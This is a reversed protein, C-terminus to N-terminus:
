FFSLLFPRFCRWDDSARSARKTRKRLPSESASDGIAGSGSGSKSGGCGADSGAEADDRSESGSSADDDGSEFKSHGGVTEKSASAEDNDNGSLVPESPSSWGQASKDGGRGHRKDRSHGPAQRERGRSSSSTSSTSNSSISDSGSTGETCSPRPSWAADREEAGHGDFFRGPRPPERYLTLVTPLEPWRTTQGVPLAGRTHARTAQTAEGAMPAGVGNGTHAGTLSPMLYTQIFTTYDGEGRFFDADLGVMFQIIADVSLSDAIRMSAPPPMPVVPDPSGATQCVFRKSLFWAPYFPGELLIWFRSTGWAGAYQDRVGASMTAWLQWTIEDAVVIDFYRRFFAFTERSQCQCRSNYRRSFSVIPPIKKIPEPALALFYVYVWLETASSSIHSYPKRLLLDEPIGRAFENFHRIGGPLLIHMRPHYTAPDFPRVRLPLPEPEFEPAFEAELDAEIDEAVGRLRSLQQSRAALQKKLNLVELAYSALQAKLKTSAEEFKRNMVDLEKVVEEYRIRFANSKAQTGRLRMRFKAKEMCNSVEGSQMKAELRSLRGTLEEVESKAKLLNDHYNEGCLDVEVEPSQQEEIQAMLKDRQLLLFSTKLFEMQLKEVEVCAHHHESALMQLKSKLDEVSKKCQEDAVKLENRLRDNEQSKEMSCNKELKVNEESCTLREQLVKCEERCSALENRVESIGESLFMTEANYLRGKEEIAEISAKEKASWIAKEEEMALLAETLQLDSIEEELINMKSNSMNLNDSLAQLDSALSESRSIAKEKEENATALEEELSAITTEMEFALVELKQFTQDYSVSLGKARRPDFVNSSRDIISDRNRGALSERKSIDRQLSKQAHLKKLEREACAKEGSLAKDSDQVKQSLEQIQSHLDVSQNHLLLKENELENVKHKMCHNLREQNSIISKLQMSNDCALSKFDTFLNLIASFSQFLEDVILSVREALNRSNQVESTIEQVELLLKITSDFQGGLHHDITRVSEVSTLQECAIRAEERANLLEEYLEEYRETACINQETTLEVVCDLNQQSSSKEVELMNIKEQLQKIVLIAESERLSKTADRHITSKDLHYTSYANCKEHLCLDAEALKRTLSDVEIESMIQTEFKLLLDEYEAQLEELETNEVLLSKKRLPAKKRNTVHLLARSDPLTCDEVEEKLKCPNDMSADDVLEEFPLLPGMDRESRMPKVASAKAHVVSNLKKPQDRNEDRNSYLVMSSLNEIKKAQEQLRKEREAQAKKEEELEMAIRERELETQLLTNRLNLIEEEFHESHSGQLKARLEEIEKKQRKLLAADTLIENVRACNTVRLARSAFQLSSKTEDAHIEGFCSRSARISALEELLELFRTSAGGIQMKEMSINHTASLLNERRMRESASVGTTILDMGITGTSHDTASQQLAVELLRFAEM